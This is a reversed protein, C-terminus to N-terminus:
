MVYIIFRLDSYKKSGSMFKELSLLLDFFKIDYRKWEHKIELMKELSCYFVEDVSKGIYQKIYKSTDSKIESYEIFPNIFWEANTGFIIGNYQNYYKEITDEDNADGTLKAVKIKSLDMMRWKNYKKDYVEAFIVTGLGM